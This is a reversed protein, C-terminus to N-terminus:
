EKVDIQKVYQELTEAARPSSADIAVEFLVMSQRVYRLKRAMLMPSLHNEAVSSFGLIVLTNADAGLLIRNLASTVPSHGIRALQQEIAPLQARAQKVTLSRFEKWDSAKVQGQVRVAAPLTGVYLIPLLTSSGWRTRYVDTFIGKGSPSEQVARILKSRERKESETSAPRFGSPVVLSVPKTMGPITVQIQSRNGDPEAHVITSSLLALILFRAKM